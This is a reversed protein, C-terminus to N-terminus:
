VEKISIIKIDQREEQELIQEKSYYLSTTITHKEKTELRIYVVQFTKNM